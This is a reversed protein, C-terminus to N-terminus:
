FLDYMYWGIALWSTVFGIGAIWRMAPFTFGLLLWPLVILSQMAFLFYSMHTFLSLAPGCLAYAFRVPSGEAVGQRMWYFLISAIVVLVFYIGTAILLRGKSSYATISM